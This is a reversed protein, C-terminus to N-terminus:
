MSQFRAIARAVSQHQKWGGFSENLHFTKASDRHASWKPFEPRSGGLTQATELDPYRETEKVLALSGPETMIRATHFNMGVIM